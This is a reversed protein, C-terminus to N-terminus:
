STAHDEKWRAIRQLVIDKCFDLDAVAARTVGQNYKGRVLIPVSYEAPPWLGLQTEAADYMEPLDDLVAVVRGSDIRNALQAYKDEDFLMGEYGIGHRSLWEVTDPVINDLSLYPRTTTVWLDAGADRIALCLERAGDFIPMTRKMGGQRYALKVDHWNRETMEFVSCWWEKFSGSGDYLHAVEQGVPLDFYQGSFVLFHTHYDALTGDIDVAVIPNIKRSCNSCRM